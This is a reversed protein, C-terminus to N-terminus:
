IIGAKAFHKKLTVKGLLGGLVAGVIGILIIVPLMGWSTLNMVGEIYESTAGRELSQAFYAERFVWMPLMSTVTWLTFVAYGILNTVFKKYEAKNMILDALLGFLGGGIICLWSQGMLFCLLGCLLGMISVAGFKQVKAVFLMFPIGALLGAIFPLLVVLIPVYGLMAAVMFMIFVIVTFIGINILDKANLKKM